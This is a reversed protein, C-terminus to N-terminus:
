EKSLKIRKLPELRPDIPPEEKQPGTSMGWCSEKCLPIMPIGLLIEDRVLDDLVATQGDYYAFDGEDDEEDKASEPVMMIKLEAEIPVHAPQTCRACPMEVELAIRGDVWIDTGTKTLQVELKGEDAIAKIEGEELEAKAWAPRIPFVYTRPGEELDRVPVAFETM